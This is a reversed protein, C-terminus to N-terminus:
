RLAGGTPSTTRASLDGGKRGIEHSGADVAQAELVDVERKGGAGEDSDRRVIDNEVQVAGGQVPRGLVAGKGPTNAGVAMRVDRYAVASDSAKIVADREGSRQTVNIGGHPGAVTKQDLVNPKYLVPCRSYFHDAVVTLDSAVVDSM